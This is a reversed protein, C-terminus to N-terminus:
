RSNPDKFVPLFVHLSTGKGPSTEVRIEGNQERLLDRVMSLGIGSGEHPPKTTFYPDFIRDVVDPQIGCGSDTVTLRVFQGPSPPKPAAGTCDTIATNGTEVVLMGGGAMADCANFVLNLLIQEVADPDAFATELSSALRLQCFIHRRISAGFLEMFGSVLRNLDLPLPDMKPERGMSLLKKLLRSGRNSAELIKGIERRQEENGGDIELAMLASGNIVQLLNRFDHVMGDALLGDGFNLGMVGKEKKNTM